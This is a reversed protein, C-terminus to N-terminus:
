KALVMQKSDIFRGDVYLSYHYTGVTLFNANVEIRGKGHGSLKLERIMKGTKDNIIIAAKKYQMPLIYNITTTYTIPNPINQELMATESNESRTEQQQSKAFSQSALTTFTRSTTYLSNGGNYNARVKWTFQTSPKLGRATYSTGTVNIMIWSSSSAPKGMITYNVPTSGCSPAQWQVKASSATIYHVIRLQFLFLRGLILLLLMCHM